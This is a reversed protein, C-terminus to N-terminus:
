VMAVQKGNSGSSFAHSELINKWSKGSRLTKNGPSELVLTMKWPKGPGPIKLGFCEPVRQRSNRFTGSGDDSELCMQFSFQEISCIVRDLMEEAAPAELEFERCVSGGVFTKSM